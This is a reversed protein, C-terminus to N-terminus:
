VLIKSGVHQTSISTQLNCSFSCVSRCNSLSFLAQNRNLFGVLKFASFPFQCLQIPLLNDQNLTELSLIVRSDEPERSLCLFLLFILLLNKIIMCIEGIHQNSSDDQSSNMDKLFQYKYRLLFFSGTVWGRLPSAPLSTVAKESSLITWFNYSEDGAAM